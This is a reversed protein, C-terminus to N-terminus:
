RHLFVVAADAKAVGAQAMAAGAAEEVAKQTVGHSSQGAGAYIM